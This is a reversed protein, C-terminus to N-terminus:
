SDLDLQISTADISQAIQEELQEPVEKDVRLILVAGDGKTTRTLAAADINIDHAGLQSGVKGLAGPVDTYRFFLNRGEARM